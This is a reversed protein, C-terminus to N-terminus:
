RKRRKVVVKAKKVPMAIRRVFRIALIAYSVFVVTWFVLWSILVSPLNVSVIANKELVDLMLFILNSILLGLIGSFWPALINFPFIFNWFLESLIGFIVIAFFLLITMNFFDLVRSYVPNSVSKELINALGLVILFVLFGMTKGMVIRFSSKVMYM